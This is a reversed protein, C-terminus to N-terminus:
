KRVAVDVPISWSMTSALPRTGSQQAEDEVDDGPEAGEREGHDHRDVQQDPAAPTLQDVGHPGHAIAPASQRSM